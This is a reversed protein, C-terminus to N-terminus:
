EVLTILVKRERPGDFEMLFIGQWTGLFPTEKSFPVTVSCGTLISKIHADANGETHKYLHSLPVMRNLAEMIDEMVHPDADENIVIGCTTHPTYVNLIRGTKGRVANLIMDTINKSEV